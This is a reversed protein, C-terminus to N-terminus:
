ADAPVWNRWKYKVMGLREYIYDAFAAIRDNPTLPVWTSHHRARAPYCAVKFGVMEFTACARRTHMPSTVVVLTRAGEPLKVASQVAEDRTTFVGELVTWAPSAGAVRVLREQDPTSSLSGGSYEGEVKTTFLRPAIGRQLLELGSLLRETGEVNMASDSLVLASLVVIADASAPLPDARVWKPAIRTMIPTYAVLTYVLALLGNLALLIWQGRLVGAVAGVFLCILILEPASSIGATDSTGFAELFFGTLAGAAAGIAARQGSIALKLNRQSQKAKKGGVPDIGIVSSSRRDIM